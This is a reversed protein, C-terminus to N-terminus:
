MTKRTECLELEGFAKKLEPVELLGRLYGEVSPADKRMEADVLFKTALQMPGLVMVDALTLQDGVLYKRGKVAVDLRKVARELNGLFFKYKEEDYPIMKLVVMLLPPVLNPGLEQDAFCAWQEILARTQADDGILQSAKPGSEALYRAIAQGETLLFKGDASEFAPVKGYPFKALFEPSKNTVGIQFDSPIELELGNLEAIAQARQVRYNSAYTHIKGFPAM